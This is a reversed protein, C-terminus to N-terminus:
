DEVEEKVGDKKIVKWIGDGVYQAKKVLYLKDTIPSRMLAGNKFTITEGKRITIEVTEYDENM